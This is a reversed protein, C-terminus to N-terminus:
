PVAYISCRRALTRAHFNPISGARGQLSWSPGQGSRTAGRCCNVLQGARWARPSFPNLWNTEMLQVLSQVDADDRRMRPLQLDPHSFDTDRQWTGWNGRTDVATSPHWITGHWLEVEWASVKPAKQHRSTKTSLRRSPRILLFVGLPTRAGLRSLFAVRYSTPMCKLTNSSCDLCRLMTIPWSGPTTWRTMPSAGHSWRDSQQLIFCGTAERSAWILGLMIEAMDLYSMWFESLGGTDRLSELILGWCHKM